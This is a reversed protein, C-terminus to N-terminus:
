DGYKETGDLVWEPLSEAHKLLELTSGLFVQHKPGKTHAPAPRKPAWVMVLFLVLLACGTIVVTSATPIVALVDDASFFTAIM